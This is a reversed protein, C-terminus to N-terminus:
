GIGGDTAELPFINPAIGNLQREISMAVDRIEQQASKDTRNRIFDKWAQFNGTVYMKTLSGQLLVYRADEKRIGAEILRNYLDHSQRVLKITDKYVDPNDLIKGPTKVVGSEQAVYRQSEQLYSLHPHRVMQHSCVRSIHEIKFTAYAFRLTALHGLNLLKKLRRQLAEEGTDADYCVAAYMAIKREPDITHDVLEVTM